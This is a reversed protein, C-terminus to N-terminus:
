SYAIIIAGCGASIFLILCVISLRCLFMNINHNDITQRINNVLLIPTEEDYDEKNDKPIDVKHNKHFFDSDSDGIISVRDAYSM